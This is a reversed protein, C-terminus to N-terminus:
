LIDGIKKKVNRLKEVVIEKDFVVTPVFVRVWAETIDALIERVKEKEEEIPLRGFLSLTPEPREVTKAVAQM